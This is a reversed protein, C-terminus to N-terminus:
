IYGLKEAGVAAATLACGDEVGDGYGTTPTLEEAGLRIADALTFKTLTDLELERLTEITKVDLGRDTRTELTNM